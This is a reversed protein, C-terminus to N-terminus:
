FDLHNKIFVLKIRRENLVQTFSATKFITIFLYIYFQSMIWYTDLVIICLILTLNLNKKLLLKSELKAFRSLEMGLFAVRNNGM